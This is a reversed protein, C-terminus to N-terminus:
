WRDGARHGVAPLWHPCVVPVVRTQRPSLHHIQRPEICVTSAGGVWDPNRPEKSTSWACPLQSHVAPSMSISLVALLILHDPLQLSTCWHLKGHLFLTHLESPVTM